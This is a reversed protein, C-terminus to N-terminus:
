QHVISLAVSVWKRVFDLRKRVHNGCETIKDISKQRSVRSLIRVEAELYLM